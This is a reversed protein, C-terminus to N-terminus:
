ANQKVIPLYLLFRTGHHYGDDLALIGGFAQVLRTTLSLGSDFDNMEEHQCNFIFFPDFVKNNLNNATKSTDTIRLVVQEKEELLYADIKLMRQAVPMIAMEKISYSLLNLLIQKLTDYNVAVLM